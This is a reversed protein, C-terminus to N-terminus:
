IREHQNILYRDVVQQAEKEKQTGILIKKGNKLEIQIGKNGKINFASGSKRGMSSRYGWGGYERIPSYTRIYCKEIENWRITKMSFQFPFFQYHIGIENIETHLKLFYFLLLVPIITFTIILKGTNDDPAVNGIHDKLVLWQYFCYLLFGFSLLYFLKMWWQDFRQFETFVRM